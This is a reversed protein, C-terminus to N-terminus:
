HPAGRPGIMDLIGTLRGLHGGALRGLHRPVNVKTHKEDKDKTKYTYCKRFKSALSDNPRALVIPNLSSLGLLVAVNNSPWKFCSSFTAM